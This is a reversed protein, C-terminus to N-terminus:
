DNCIPCQSTHTWEQHRKFFLVLLICKHLHDDGQALCVYYEHHDVCSYLSHNCLMNQKIQPLCDVMRGLSGGHSSLHRWQTPFRMYLILKFSASDMWCVKWSGMWPISLRQWLRRWLGASLERATLLFVMDGSVVDLAFVPPSSTTLTLTTVVRWSTQIWTLRTNPM